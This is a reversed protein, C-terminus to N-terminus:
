KQCPSDLQVEGIFEDYEKQMLEIEEKNAEIILEIEASTM